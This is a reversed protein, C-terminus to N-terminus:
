AVHFLPPRQEVFGTIAALDARALEEFQIGMGPITDPTLENFERVWRVIGPANILHGDPLTFSLDLREGIEKTDYTAIFIGGTSIDETFGTFFNTESQLGVEAEIPLRPAARREAGPAEAALSPLPSAPMRSPSDEAVSIPHLLALTRAVTRTTADVALAERNWRDLEDLAPGLERLAEAARNALEAVRGARPHDIPEVAPPVAIAGFRSAEELVREAAEMEVCMAAHRNQLPGLAARLLSMTEKAQWAYQEVSSMSLTPTDLAARADELFATVSSLEDSDAGADDSAGALHALAEGVKAEAQRIAVIIEEISPQGQSETNM